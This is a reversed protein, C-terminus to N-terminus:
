IASQALHGLRASARSNISAIRQVELALSYTDPFYRGSFDVQRRACLGFASLVFFLWLGSIK